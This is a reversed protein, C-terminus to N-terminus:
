IMVFSITQRFPGRHADHRVYVYEASKLDRPVYTKSVGHHAPALPSLRSLSEQLTRVFDSDPLFKDHTESKPDPHNLLTASALASKAAQFAAQCEATWTIAKSRSKTAETLPTLCKAIGPLFRHYFNIMGLFRQLAKKDNPNPFETIAKVKEPLPTIGNQSIKHGLFTRTPQGFLCKQTNIVLGNAALPRRLDAEHEQPSSSAVLIDDLYVFCCRLNQLIGDMLRQFAQAANKLGFPMKLYEYLGFPTIIATKPIDEEAVRIQHYGRVLDIKSFITKGHLNSNLDQIHPLPYKDGKTIDNLCRYDGCPRWGGNSKKVIHLPSSWASSSRRVIGLREEFETKAASLKDKDLRRARTHVPPGSTPIHHVVGHKNNKFTPVLLEPFEELIVEYKSHVKYVQARRM